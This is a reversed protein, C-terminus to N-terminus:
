ENRNQGVRTVRCRLGFAAMGWGIRSRCSDSMWEVGGPQGGIEALAGAVGVLIEVRVVEAAQEVGALDQDQQIAQVLRGVAELALASHPADFAQGLGPWM